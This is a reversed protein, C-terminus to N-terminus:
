ITKSNHNAHKHGDLGANLADESFSESSLPTYKAYQWLYINFVYAQADYWRNWAAETLWNEGERWIPNDHIGHDKERMGYAALAATKVDFQVADNALV